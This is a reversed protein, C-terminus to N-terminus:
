QPCFRESDSLLHHLWRTFLGLWFIRARSVIVLYGWEMQYIIRFGNVDIQVVKTWNKMIEVATSKSVLIGAKLTKRYLQSIKGFVCILNHRQGAQFKKLLNESSAPYWTWFRWTPLYPWRHDSAQSELKMVWGIVRLWVSISHDRSHVLSEWLTSSLEASCKKSKSCMEERVSQPAWHRESFKFFFLPLTLHNKRQKDKSVWM